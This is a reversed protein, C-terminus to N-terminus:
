FGELTVPGRDVIGSVCVWCVPGEVDRHGEGYDRWCVTIGRLQAACEGTESRDPPTSMLDRVSTTPLHLTAYTRRPDNPSIKAIDARKCAARPSLEILLRVKYADKAERPSGNHEPM